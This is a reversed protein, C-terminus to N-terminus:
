STIFRAQRAYMASVAPSFPPKSQPLAGAVHGVFLAVAAFAVVSMVLRTNRGMAASAIRGLTWRLIVYLVALILVAASTALAVLWAPAAHILMSAVDPIYRLDWYLNVDRGYLAPATVDAYRGITLVLW